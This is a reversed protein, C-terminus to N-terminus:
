WTWVPEAIQQLTSTAIPGFYRGDFSQPHALNAPFVEGAALQQCGRWRPLPRGQADKTAVTGVLRQNIVLGDDTGCVTDGPLAALPKLLPVQPPLWGRTVLLSAVPAPAPFVVLQGLTLPQTPARLRYLGRPVSPTLNLLLPPADIYRYELTLLGWLGWLGLLYCAPQLPLRRPGHLAKRSPLTHLLM